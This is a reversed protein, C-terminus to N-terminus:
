ITGESCEYIKRYTSKLNESNYRSLDVERRITGYQDIYKMIEDAWVEAGEELSLYTILGCDAEKPVRDSAFCKMGTAQAEILAIGLGELKSPFVFINNERLRASIDTDGPYFVVHDEMHKEKIKDRIAREDEKTGYGVLTLMVNSHAQAIKALVDILFLQNKPGGWRGIHILSYPNESGCASYHYKDLDIANPVVVINDEEDFLYRGAKISCALRKTAYKKILFKYAMEYFRRVYHGHMPLAYSHSHMIRVPIGMKKAAMLFLGGEHYNHCHIIDYPGNERLIKCFSRYIYLPRIYYDLRSRFTRPGTVTDITFISGQRSFEEEYFKDERNFLIIDFKCEGKVNRIISMIVNQIGGLGLNDCAVFLVKKMQM